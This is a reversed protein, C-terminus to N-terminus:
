LLSLEAARLLADRSEMEARPYMVLAISQNSQDGLGLEYLTFNNVAEKSDKPVRIGVRNVHINISELRLLEEPEDLARELADLYISPTNLAIRGLAANLLALQYDIYEVYREFLFQRLASRVESESTRPYRIVHDTFSVTTQKVDRVLLGDALGSSFIEKEQRAMFMIACAHELGGNGPDSFFDQLEPSRSFLERISTKNVFFANVRPDHLFSHQNVGIPAPLRDVLQDVYDLLARVGARLRKRYASVTRLRSDTAKVVSEVAAMELTDRQRSSRRRSAYRDVLTTIRELQVQFHQRLGATEPIRRDSDL